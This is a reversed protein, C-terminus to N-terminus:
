MRNDESFGRWAGGLIVSQRHDRMCGFGSVGEGSNLKRGEDRREGMMPIAIKPM